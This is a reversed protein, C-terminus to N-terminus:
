KNKKKKNDYFMEYHAFIYKKYKGLFKSTTYKRESFAHYLVGRTAKKICKNRKSDNPVTASKISIVMMM